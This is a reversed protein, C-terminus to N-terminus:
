ILRLLKRLWRQKPQKVPALDEFPYDDAENEIWAIYRPEFAEALGHEWAFTFVGPYLAGLLAGTVAGITDSDGDTAVSRRLAEMPEGPLMDATLLAIVLTFPARWGGGKGGAEPVALSPDSTLAWPDGRLEPLASLAKEVLSYIFDFGEVLNVQYGDLWEGTDTLGYEEAASCLELAHWLLGGPGVKGTLIDRLIKVNLIAAAIGTPSGHTLAAAFATAGVWRDEPLLACPSTRMVTGSGDSTSSTADQWHVANKLRGLSGMVTIGPARNNDPDDYYELFAQIIGWQVKSVPEDWTEDLASGLYLTMQTDDTIRLELPIDPGKPDTATITKISAFEVPDGWADGLAVGRVMNSWANNSM